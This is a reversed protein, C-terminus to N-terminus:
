QPQSIPANANGLNTLQLAALRAVGEPTQRIRNILAAAFPNGATAAEAVSKLQADLKAVNRTVGRAAAPAHELAKAAVPALLAAPHGM